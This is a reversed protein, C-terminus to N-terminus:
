GTRSAQEANAEARGQETESNGGAARQLAKTDEAESVEFTGKMRHKEIETEVLYQM